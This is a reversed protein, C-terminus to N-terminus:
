RDANTEFIEEFGAEITLFVDVLEADFHIGKGEAIETMSDEHTFAAKYSRKMRLADYVDAITVIRAALPIDAGVLTYPYGSGNWWEHHSLAIQKAMPNPYSSLIYAGNITHEKMEDWESASLPGAKNLVDDRTGIKGVDHMAALFGIDEVFDVDVEPWRPDLYLRQTLLASYLNVREIHLGTDNDKLKSAELLSSFTGRLSERNEATVDDLLVSYATPSRSAEEVPWLPQVLLHTVKVPTDMTKHSITAKWTYSTAPDMLDATIKRLEDAAFCRTFIAPFSSSSNYRYDRALLRFGPNQYIFDLERDMIALPAPNKEYSRALDRLFTSSLLPSEHTSSEEFEGSEAAAELEEIEEIEELEELVELEELPEEIERDSM